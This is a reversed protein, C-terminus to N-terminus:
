SLSAYLYHVTILFGPLAQSFRVASGCHVESMHINNQLLIIKINQKIITTNSTSMRMRVFVFLRNFLVFCVHVLISKNQLPIFKINSKPIKFCVHISCFVCSFYCIIKFQLLKIIQNQYKM